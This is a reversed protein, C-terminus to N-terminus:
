QFWVIHIHFITHSECSYWFFLHFVKCLTVPLSHPPLQNGCEGDIILMRSSMVVGNAVCQVVAECESVVLM